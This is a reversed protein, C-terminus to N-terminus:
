LRLYYNDMIVVMVCFIVGTNLRPLKTSKQVYFYLFIIIFALFPDISYFVAGFGCFIYRYFIRSIKWLIPPPSLVTWKAGSFCYQFYKDISEM